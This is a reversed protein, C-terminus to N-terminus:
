RAELAYFVCLGLSSWVAASFYLSMWAIEDKWASLDRTVVWRTSADYLGELPRLFRRGNAAKDRWRGVYMPVDVTLLFALYGAIGLCAIALAVRVAGDFDPLLRMLGIGIASFAVAWISNEIASGLYNTTLVAYWSFAEAILILPLIVLAANLTTDSGTMAGLRLLVITWQAAFCLEAVTAVSRGVVVSSLWTDFLCIRQVDARPLLSRFACGFVYAASLLLMLETSSSSSFRTALETHYERYLLFWIAINAASVFTLLGWWRAVPNSWTLSNPRARWEVSM